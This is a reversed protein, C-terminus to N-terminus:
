IQNLKIILQIIIFLIKIILSVLLIKFLNKNSIIIHLELMPHIGIITRHKIIKM